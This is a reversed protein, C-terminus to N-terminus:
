RRLEENEEKMEDRQKLAQRLEPEMKMLSAKVSALEAELTQAERVLKDM